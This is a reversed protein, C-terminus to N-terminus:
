EKGRKLVNPVLHYLKNERVVQGKKWVDKRPHGGSFLLYKPRNETLVINESKPQTHDHGIKHHEM